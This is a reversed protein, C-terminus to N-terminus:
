GGAAEKRDLREIEAVILAAAKILDRRPSTPKFWTVDWDVPWFLPSDRGSGIVAFVTYGAAASALDGDEHQDDHEPTWGEERIQRFREDEIENMVTMTHKHDHESM